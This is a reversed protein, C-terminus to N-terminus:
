IILVYRERCLQVTLASYKESYFFSLIGKKGSSANMEMLIKQREEEEDRQSRLTAPARAGRKKKPLDMGM